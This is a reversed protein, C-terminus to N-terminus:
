EKKDTLKFVAVSFSRTNYETYATTDKNSAFALDASDFCLTWEKGNDLQPLTWKISESFANMVIFLTTDKNDSVTFSLTRAFPRGWDAVTMVTASPTYFQRIGDDSNLLPHEKRFAILGKVFNFLKSYKRHRLRRWDLWNINNDQCYANNNGRQSKAFEDGCPFMPTGASLLLSAWMAAMRRFRLNNIFIDNTEGDTGSNWSLNNCNGDQNNEGNIENHKYNYSVLDYMTFGDHATIFNISSYLPRTGFLDKSGCFRAAVESTIGQWGAWFKRMTDRYRDNWEAFPYGFRSLNYGGQELAWPEAILKLKSLVPHNRLSELFPSDPNFGGNDKGLSAALDFRFGDVHMENAWFTLSDLVLNRVTENELNFSAGCGTDDFYANKDHPNLKYYTENDLGKYCLVPGYANSEATHNYVVDIIVELGNAHLTRVMQKFEDPNGSTLYETHPAFFCLSDYGWYNSLGREQQFSNTFFNHVPMLSLSTIGLKHFYDIVPKECLGLFKGRYEPPIDTCLKTMGKVHVEYLITKDFPILPRTDNQWDFVATDDIVESKMMFPASDENNIINFDEKYAFMSPHWLPNGKLSKAYPDALLKNINFKKGQSPNYEGDARYAYLQHPQLGKVYIHWIDETKHMPIRHEKGEDDFLCLCLLTAASSFVAFNVGEGDYHSGLPNPKGVTIDKGIYFTETM